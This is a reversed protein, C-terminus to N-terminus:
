LVVAPKPEGNEHWERHAQQQVRASDVHPWARGAWPRGGEGAMCSEVRCVAQYRGGNALEIAVRAM